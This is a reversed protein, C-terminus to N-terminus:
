SSKMYKFQLAKRTPLASKNLVFERIGNFIDMLQQVYITLHFAESKALPIIGNQFRM